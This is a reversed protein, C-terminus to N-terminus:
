DAGSSKCLGRANRLTNKGGGGENKADDETSDEEAGNDQAPDGDKTEKNESDGNESAGKQPQGEDTDDSGTVDSAAEETKKEQLIEEEQALATVSLQPASTAMIAAALAISLGKKFARRVKGVVM